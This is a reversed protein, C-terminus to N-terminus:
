SSAKQEVSYIKRRSDRPERNGYADGANTVKCLSVLVKVLMMMQERSWFIAALFVGRTCLAHSISVDQFGIVVRMAFYRDRRADKLGSTHGGRLLLSCREDSSWRSARRVRSPSSHPCWRAHATFQLM